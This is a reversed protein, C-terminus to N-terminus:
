GGDAGSASTFRASGLGPQPNPREATDPRAEPEHRPPPRVARGNGSPARTHSTKSSSTATEVVECRSRTQAGRGGCGNGTLDTKSSCPRRVKLRSPAPRLRRVTRDRSIRAPHIPRLHLAPRQRHREEAAPTVGRRQAATTHPTQEGVRSHDPARPADRDAAGGRRPCRDARHVGERSDTSERDGSNVAILEETGDAPVCMLVLACSKTEQCVYACPIGDAWAYVYDSGSLDREGFAQHDAAVAPHVSDGDGTVPRLAQRPVAGPHARLRRPPRAM